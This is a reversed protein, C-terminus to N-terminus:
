RGEAKMRQLRKEALNAATSKPYGNIVETLAQKAADWQGLEYHIFGLKLKADAVKASNPYQNVVKQFETLAENFQKTVYKTEALWYQANDSYAGTPYTKLFDRFATEAQPYRGEKLLNFAKQYAAEEGATPAAAAPPPTEPQAATTGPTAAPPLAAPPVPVSGVELKRLRRDMDLYLDKQRRKLDDFEHNLLEVEGRLERVEGQLKDLRTLMDVLSQSELLREVRSLRTDIDALKAPEPSAAQASLSVACAAAVWLLSLRISMM